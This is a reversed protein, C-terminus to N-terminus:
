PSFARYIGAWHCRRPDFIYGGLQRGSLAIYTEIMIMENEMKKRNM